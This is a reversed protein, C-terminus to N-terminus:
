YKIEIGVVGYKDQEEKSYYKEMDKFDAIENEFYGLSKKDFHKYLGEFNSFIHLGIVTVEIKENTDVNTFVIKDGVKIQKRKEDYLRMEINKSGAKISEFPGNQLKMDITTNELYTKLVNLTDRVVAERTSTKISDTVIDIIKDKPLFRVEFNGDEEDETLNMGDKNVDFDSNIIYYNAITKTNLGNSPYDKNYYTISLFPDDLKFDLDVGAEEKIERKLCEEDTEDEVHGGLFFYNNHSYCIAIEGKSNLIIAKARRVINNIDEEYLSDKNYVINKM